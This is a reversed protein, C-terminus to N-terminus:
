RYSSVVQVIQPQMARFQPLVKNIIGGVMEPKMNNAGRAKALTLPTSFLTLLGMAQSHREVAAPNDTGLYAMITYPYMQSIQDASMGLSFEIAEPTNRAALVHCTFHIVLDFIPNGVCVDDLDILVLEGDQLMVNGEHFDMHLLTDKKPVAALVERLLEADAHDVYREELYDIWGGVKEEVRPLVGPRVETTHLERLLGGMARGLEPIRSPDASVARGVTTADFLEFVIGYREGVRVTDFAIACPVGATFAATAHQNEVQIKRLDTGANYVKVITEDDKRWVEGNAGRAIFELGELSVERLRRRVEMVQTLGTMEFVDYVEPSVNDLALAGESRVLRMMVRLGASSIYDLADADLSMAGQPHEARIGAIAKELASASDATVRGALAIVLSDESASLVTATCTSM